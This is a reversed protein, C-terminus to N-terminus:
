CAQPTRRPCGLQRVLWQRLTTPPNSLRSSSSTADGAFTADSDDAGFTSKLFRPSMFVLGVVIEINESFGVELTTKVIHLSALILRARLSSSM